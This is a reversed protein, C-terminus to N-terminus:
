SHINCVMGHHQICWDNMKSMIDESQHIVIEPGTAVINLDKDTILCAAEILHCTNIDLGTM